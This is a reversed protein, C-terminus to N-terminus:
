DVHEKPFEFLESNSLKSDEQSVDTSGNQYQPQTTQTTNQPSQQKTKQSIAQQKQTNDTTCQQQQHHKSVDKQQHKQAQQKEHEQQLKKFWLMEQATIHHQCSLSQAFWSIIVANAAILVALIVCTM